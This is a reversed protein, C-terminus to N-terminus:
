FSKIISWIILMIRSKRLFVTCLRCYKSNSYIYLLTNRLLLGRFSKFLIRLFYRLFVENKTLNCTTFIFEYELFTNKLNKTLLRLLRTWSKQSSQKWLGVRTLQLYTLKNSYILPYILFGPVWTREHAM